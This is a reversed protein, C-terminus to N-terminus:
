RAAPTPESSSKEGRRAREQQEIIPAMLSAIKGSCLKFFFCCCRGDRGRPRRADQDGPEKGEVPKGLIRGLHDGYGQVVGAVLM